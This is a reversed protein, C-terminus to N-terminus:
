CKDLRGPLETYVKNPILSRNFPQQHGAVIILFSVQILHQHVCLVQLGNAGHGLLGVDICQVSTHNLIEIHIDVM